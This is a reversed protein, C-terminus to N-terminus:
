ESLDMDQEGYESEDESVDMGQEGNYMSAYYAKKLVWLRQWRAQDFKKKRLVKTDTIIESLSISPQEYEDDDSDEFRVIFPKQHAKTIACSDATPYKFRVGMEAM